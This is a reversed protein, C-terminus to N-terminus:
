SLLAIAGKIIQTTISGIYFNDAPFQGSMAWAVFGLFDIFLLGWALAGIFKLTNLIM